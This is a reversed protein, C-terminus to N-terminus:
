INRVKKLRALRRNSMANKIMEAVSDTNDDIGDFIQFLRKEEWGMQYLSERVQEISMEPNTAKLRKVENVVTDRAENDLREEPTEEEKVAPDDNPAVLSDDLSMDSPINNEFSLDPIDDKQEKEVNMEEETMINDDALKVRFKYM